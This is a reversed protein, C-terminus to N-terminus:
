STVLCPTEQLSQEMDKLTKSQVTEEYEIWPTSKM